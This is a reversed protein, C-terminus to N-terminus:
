LYCKVFKIVDLSVHVEKAIKTISSASGVSAEQLDKKKM